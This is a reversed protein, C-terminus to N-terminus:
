LEPQKSPHNSKRKKHAAFRERHCAVENSNVLFAFRPFANFLARLQDSDCHVRTFMFDWQQTSSVRRLGILSAPTFYPAITPPMEIISVEWKGHSADSLIQAVVPVDQIHVALNTDNRLHRLVVRGNAYIAIVEIGAISHSLLLASSEPDPM